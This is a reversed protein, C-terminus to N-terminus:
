DRGQGLKGLFRARTERLFPTQQPPVIFKKTSLWGGTDVVIYRIAGSSHDFIVDDITGLKSDDRGYPNAGRIDDGEM